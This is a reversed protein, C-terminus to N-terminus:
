RRRNDIIMSALDKYKDDLSKTIPTSTPYAQSVKPGQKTRIIDPYQKKFEEVAKTVSMEDIKGEDPNWVIKDTDVLSLYKHDVEGDLAKMFSNYKLGMIREDQMQQNRSAENQLEAKLKEIEQERMSILGKYDEKERLKNEEHTKLQNEYDAIKSEFERLKEQANKKETIARRYSQYSLEQKPEEVSDSVPQQNDDGIVQKTEESM